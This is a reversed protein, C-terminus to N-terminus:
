NQQYIPENILKKVLDNSVEGASTDVNQAVSFVSIDDAFLKVKSLGEALDKIYILSPLLSVTFVQCSM